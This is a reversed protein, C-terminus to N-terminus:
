GACLMSPFLEDDVYSIGCEEDSLVPLDTYLLKASLAGGESTTGWGSVRCVELFLLMVCINLAYM